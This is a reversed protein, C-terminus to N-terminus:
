YDDDYDYMDDDDYDICMSDRECLLLRFLTDNEFKVSEEEFIRKEIKKEIERLQEDTTNEDIVDSEEPWVQAMFYDFADWWTATQAAEFNSPDEFWRELDYILSCLENRDNSKGIYNSGNYEVRFDNLLQDVIAKVTEDNEVIEILKKENYEYWDPLKFREDLGSFIRQSVSNDGRMCEYYSWEGDEKNLVIYKSFVM